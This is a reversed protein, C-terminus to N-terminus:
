IAIKGQGKGGQDPKAEQVRNEGKNRPHGTAFSSHRKPGFVVEEVVFGSKGEPLDVFRFVFIM